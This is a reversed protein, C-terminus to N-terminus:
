HGLMEFQKLDMTWSQKEIHMFKEFCHFVFPDDDMIKNGACM